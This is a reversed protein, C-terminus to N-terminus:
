RSSTVPAQAAVAGPAASLCTYEKRIPVVIGVTVTAVIYGWWPFYTAVSKLGHECEIAQSETSTLGWLLSAGAENQVTGGTGPGIVRAAYCNCLALLATISILRRM